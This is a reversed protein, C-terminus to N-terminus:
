LFSCGGGRDLRHFAPRNSPQLLALQGMRRGEMRGGKREEMRRTKGGKRGSGFGKEPGKMFFANKEPPGRRGSIAESPASGMGAKCRLRGGCSGAREAHGGLGGACM